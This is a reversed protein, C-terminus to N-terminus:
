WVFNQDCVNIWPLQKTDHEPLREVNQPLDGLVMASYENTRCM